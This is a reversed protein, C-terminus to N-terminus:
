SKIIKIKDTIEKYLKIRKKCHTTLMDSGSPCYDLVIVHTKNGHLRLGRGLNQWLPGKGAVFNALVLVDVNKTDVGEGIISDTGILGPIKGSNLLKIYEKSKKDEGTALNLGTATAIIKGHEVMDVLCLVSKGAAIFKQIDGIIQDNMERSKLVHEKYNKLKDDKYQRGSTKIERVIFYPEALWKNKIGWIIDRKILVEGVGATIMIDKGDSRFDTATLGFMRGVHGLNEALSFFTNAALHHVEDFIVLGLDQEIFKNVSNNVSQAIGVTIDKIQKKGDGFYGVRSDGFASVLEDYFNDAINKGPCVILTKKKLKRIVHVSTLTKGMGTAFNILGRYNQMMLDNAEVQYDRLDHPKKNWPLVITVGTDSRRDEKPMDKILHTFGSPIELDGNSLEKVLTGIMESKMKKVLPSNKTFPNRSMRRIAYEKSKDTYSLHSKIYKKFVETPDKITIKNNELVAIM